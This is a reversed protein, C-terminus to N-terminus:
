LRERDRERKRQKIAESERELKNGSDTRRKRQRKNEREIGKNCKREIKQKSMQGKCNQKYGQGRTQEKNGNLKKRNDMISSKEIQIHCLKKLGIFFLKQIRDMLHSISLNLSPIDPKLNRRVKGRHQTIDM